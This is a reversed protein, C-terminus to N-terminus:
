KAPAKGEEPEGGALATLLTLISLLRLTFRCAGLALLAMTIYMWYKQLFSKEPIPKVVEGEESLQPPAKLEPRNGRMLVLEEEFNPSLECIHRRQDTSLSPLTSLFPTSLQSNSPRTLVHAMM